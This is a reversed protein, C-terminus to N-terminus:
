LSFMRDRPQVNVRGATSQRQFEATFSRSFWRKRLNPWDFYYYVFVVKIITTLRSTHNEDAPLHCVYLIRPGLTLQFM